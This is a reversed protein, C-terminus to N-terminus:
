KSRILRLHMYRISSDEAADPESDELAPIDGRYRSRHNRDYEQAQQYQWYTEFDGSTRLARLKLVADAGTLGWRAGTIDM